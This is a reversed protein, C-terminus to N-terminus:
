STYRIIEKHAAIENRCGSASVELGCYHGLHSNIVYICQRNRTGHVNLSIELCIVSGCAIESQMIDMM